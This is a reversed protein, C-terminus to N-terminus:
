VSQRIKRVQVVGRDLWWLSPVVPRASLPVLRAVALLVSGGASRLPGHGRAGVM